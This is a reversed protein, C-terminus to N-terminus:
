GASGGGTGACAHGLENRGRPRAGVGASARGSGSSARVWPIALDDPARLRCSPRHLRTRLPAPAHLCTTVARVATVGRALMAARAPNRRRCPIPSRHPRPTHRDANQTPHSPRAWPRPSGPSSGHPRPPAPDAAGANRTRHGHRPRPRAPGGRGLDSGPRHLGLLPERPLRPGPGRSDRHRGAPHFGARLAGAARHVGRALHDRRTRPPAFNQEEFVEGVPQGTVQETVMGPLIYDFDEPLPETTQSGPERTVRRRCRDCLSRLGPGFAVTNRVRGPHGVPRGPFVPRRSGRRGRITGRGGM